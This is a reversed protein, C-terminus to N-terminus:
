ISWEAHGTPPLANYVIDISPDALLADYGGFARPIGNAAAYASAKDADRSSVAGIVVDSRRRAPDIIARPAIGAAGLIGIAHM